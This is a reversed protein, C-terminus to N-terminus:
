KEVEKIADKIASPVTDDTFALNPKYESKKRLDLNSYIYLLTSSLHQIYILEIELNM